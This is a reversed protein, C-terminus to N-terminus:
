ESSHRVWFPCILCLVLKLENRHLGTAGVRVYNQSLVGRDGFVFILFETRNPLYLMPTVLTQGLPTSPFVTGSFM